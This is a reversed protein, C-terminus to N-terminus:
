LQEVTFAMDCCQTSLSQVLKIIVVNLFSMLEKSYAKHSASYM